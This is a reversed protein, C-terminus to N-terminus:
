SRILQCVTHLDENTRLAEVAFENVTIKQVAAISSVSTLFIKRPIGLDERHWCLGKTSIRVLRPLLVDTKHGQFIDAQHISEHKVARTSTHRDRLIESDRLGIEYYAFEPIADDHM